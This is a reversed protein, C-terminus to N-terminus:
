KGELGKDIVVGNGHRPDRELQELRENSGKDEQLGSIHAYGALFGQRGQSQQQQQQQQQNDQYGFKDGDRLNKHPSDIYRQGSKSEKELLTAASQFRDSNSGMEYEMHYGYLSPNHSELKERYDFSEMDKSPHYNANDIDHLKSKDIPQLGDSLTQSSRIIDELMSAKDQSNTPFHQNKAMETNTKKKIDSQLSLATPLVSAKDHATKLVWQRESEPKSSPQPDSRNEAGVCPNGNIRLSQM